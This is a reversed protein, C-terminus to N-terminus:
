RWSSPTLTRSSLEGNGAVTTATAVIGVGVTVGATHSRIGDTRRTPRPRRPPPVAHRTGCSAGVATSAVATAVTTAPDVVIGVGVSLPDAM